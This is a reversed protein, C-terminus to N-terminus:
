HWQVRPVVVLLLSSPPFRAPLSFICCMSFLSLLRASVFLRQPSFGFHFPHLYSPQSVAGGAESLAWIKRRQWLLVTSIALFALPLQDPVRTPERQDVLSQLINTMVDCNLSFFTLRQTPGRIIKSHHGASVEKSWLITRHKSIFMQNRTESSYFPKGTTAKLTNM